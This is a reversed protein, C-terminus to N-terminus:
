LLKYLNVVFYHLKRDLKSRFAGLPHIIEFDKYYSLFGKTICITGISIVSMPVCAMHLFQSCNLFLSHNLARVTFGVMSRHTNCGRRSHIAGIM